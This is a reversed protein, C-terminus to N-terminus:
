TATIIIFLPNMFNNHYYYTPVPLISSLLIADRFYTEDYITRRLWSSILGALFGRAKSMEWLGNGNERRGNSFSESAM